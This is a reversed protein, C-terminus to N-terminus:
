CKKSPVQYRKSCWCATPNEERVQYQDARIPMSKCDACGVTITQERQIYFYVYFLSDFPKSLRRM